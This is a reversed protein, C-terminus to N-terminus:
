ITEIPTLVRKGTDKVPREKSDKQNQRKPDEKTKKERSQGDERITEYVPSNRIAPRKLSTDPDPSAITEKPSIKMDDREKKNTSPPRAQIEIESKMALRGALFGVSLLTLSLLAYMLWSDKLTNWDNVRTGGASVPEIPFPSKIGRGRGGEHAIRLVNGQGSGVARYGGTSEVDVLIVTINDHGGRENAADICKDACVRIDKEVSLIESIEGDMLMSNLGDSCLLVRDGPELDYVAIEPEQGKGGFDGLSKTIVNSEPHYFAQQRTIRGADLLEQVYSHDRTIHYLNGDGRYLYGRSDGLWAMYLRGGVVWGVVLTTGMGSYSSDSRCMDMLRSQAKSFVDRIQFLMREDDGVEPIRVGKLHNELTSIVELSAVEGANSGGMGDAVAFVSGKPGVTVPDSSYARDPNDLDPMVLFNDENHERARGNDTKFAVKIKMATM